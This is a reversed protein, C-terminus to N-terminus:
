GFVIPVGPGFVISIVDNPKQGIQAGTHEGSKEVNLVIWEGKLGIKKAAEAVEMLSQKSVESSFNESSLTTLDTEQSFTQNGFISLFVVFALTKRIM